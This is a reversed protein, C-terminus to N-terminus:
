LCPVEKEKTDNGMEPTDDGAWAPRCHRTYMDM